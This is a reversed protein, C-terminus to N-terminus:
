LAELCERYHEIMQEYDAARIRRTTSGLSLLRMVEDKGYMEEIYLHYAITASQVGFLNCRPCQPHINRWEFYVANGRAKPVFHGAHSEKWPMETKCTVCRVMGRHDAYFRRVVESLLKWALRKLAGISKRKKVTRKGM